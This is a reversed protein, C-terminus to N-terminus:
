EAQQPPSFWKGIVKIHAVVTVPALYISKYHRSREFSSSPYESFTSSMSSPCFPHPPYPIPLLLASNRALRQEPNNFVRLSMQPMKKMVNQFISLMEVNKKDSLEVYVILFPIPIQFPM